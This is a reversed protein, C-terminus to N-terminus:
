LMIVNNRPSPPPTSPEQQPSPDSNTVITEALIEYETIRITPHEVSLSRFEDTFTLIYFCFTTAVIWESISSAVHYKWGGDSPYWKRPDEGRFLIHSIVGTVAVVIFFITCVVSLFLRVHARFMSGVYPHLYYSIVAQIWFYITGLGFCLFAGVLHVIRVNTEQFNAVISIGLCSGFGIWLGRSNLKWTSDRLDNHYDCLVCIQRYRIYVVIGLLVCGMNILQGFVCSEPSYTAADSIYPIAPIVHGQVIAAIYTGLFTVQFLLYVSIPLLYLYSM